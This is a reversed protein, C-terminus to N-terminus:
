SLHCVTILPTCSPPPGMNVNAMSQVLAPDPTPEFHSTQPSALPPKDSVLYHISIPSVASHKAPLVKITPCPTTASVGPPNASKPSREGIKQKIANLM